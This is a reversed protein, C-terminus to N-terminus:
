KKSWIFYFTRWVYILVTCWSWVKSYLINRLNPNKVPNLFKESNPLLDASFDGFQWFNDCHFCRKCLWIANMTNKAFFHCFTFGPQNSPCSEISVSYESSCFGPNNRDPATWYGCFCSDIRDYTNNCICNPDELTCRIPVCKSTEATIAKLGFGPECRCDM